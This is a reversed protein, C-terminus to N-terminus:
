GVFSTNRKYYHVGIVYIQVILMAIVTSTFRFIPTIQLSIIAYLAILLPMFIVSGKEVKQYVAVTIIGLFFLFLLSGSFSYDEAFRRFISYINTTTKGFSVNVPDAIDNMESKEIGFLNYVGQFTMYGFMLKNDRNWNQEFWQSFASAHGLIGVKVNANSSRKIIKDITPIEGTRAINSFASMLLVVIIIALLTLIRNKSFLRYNKNKGILVQSAIYGSFFMILSILIAARTTQTVLVIVAPLLSCFSLFKEKNNNNVSLLIGGFIPSAYVFPLLMQTILYTFPDGSYRLVSFERGVSVIEELSLYISISKGFIIILYISSLIGLIISTVLITKLFPFCYSDNIKDVANDLDINNSSDHLANNHVLGTRYKHDMVISGSLFALTSTLVWWMSSPSIYFDPAVVLPAIFFVSVFLVFFSGPHIWTGYYSRAIFAILVLVTLPILALLWNTIM